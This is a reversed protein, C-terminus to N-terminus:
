SRPSTEASVDQKPWPDFGPAGGPARPDWDYELFGFFLSVQGQDASAPPSMRVSTTLLHSESLAAPAGIAAPSQGSVPVALALVAAVLASAALARALRDAPRRAPSAESTHVPM